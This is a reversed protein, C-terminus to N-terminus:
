HSPLHSLIRDVHSSMEARLSAEDFKEVNKNYLVFKNNCVVHKVHNSLCSRMFWGPLDNVPESEIGWNYFVFDETKGAVLQGLEPKGTMVQHCQDFVSELLRRDSVEVKHHKFLLHTTFLERLMDMSDHSAACDTGIIFSVQSSEVLELPLLNEYFIESSACVGLRTGRDAMLKFDRESNAICHVLLTRDHLVGLKEVWEVPTCSERKQIINWENQTQAMHMHIPLDASKSFEAVERMLKESVTDTAHPALVPVINSSFPWNSILDRVQSFREYSPFAGGLDALTEGLYLKVGLQEAAKGINESMYYHECFHTVGSKLGAVLGALAFVEVDKPKLHSETPFFIDGIMNMSGHALDRLFNMAVHTHGNALGPTVLWGRGDLVEVEPYKFKPKTGGFDAIQGNKVYLYGGIIAQHADLLHVNKVIYEDLTRLDTDTLSKM